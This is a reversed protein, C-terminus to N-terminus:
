LFHHYYLAQCIGRKTSKIIEDGRENRPYDLTLPADDDQRVLPLLHHHKMVNVEKEGQLELLSRM